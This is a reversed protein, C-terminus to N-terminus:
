EKLKSEPMPPPAGQGYRIDQQPDYRSPPACCPPGLGITARDLAKVTASTESKFVPSPLADTAEFRYTSSKELTIAIDGGQVSQDPKGDRIVRITKGSWPTAFRMAGGDGTHVTFRALQGDVAEVDVSGRAAIAVTGSMTWHVPLAAGVRVVDGDEQVLMESLTLATVGAQEFSFDPIGFGLDGFGNPYVQYYQILERLGRAAEEGYGLRAAQVPDNSWGALYRFPRSAFTRRAIDFSPSDPGILEYPWVAELGINEANRYPATTEYSAAFVDGIPTPMQPLQPTHTLAAALQKALEDDRHLLRSAEIVAPYLTRIAAIDTAPDTVDHQTEHANSPSTHLLADAGPKQYALLFRAAEVMLPYNRELFARDATQRYTRWIWLGIEAGTTLTRANSTSSWHLDCSHTVIPFARLHDSEYEIGNGNFRMTEPVCIGPRGDMHDHTWREIAALNDRYLAFFPANLEPVGAALHVAVQTRLNWVWFAAPDWNHEDGAASFLDAGGAQSGPIAGGNHAEAAYLYLTRLTEAHRAVGDGSEARILHARHWFDHWARTSIDEHVPADLNDHVTTPKGDYAPAAVIIRLRGHADPRAAVEVTRTDITRAHVDSGLARIAAVSGFRRGSTGPLTDDLWSETLWASDSDAGATPQRPEWLALRVRQESDPLGSLDIVVRDRERDVFIRLSIGGGREEIVGDYLDVRGSFERDAILPRLTPITIKGPSRRYPLTDIRNLQLTLGDAAWVAVGLRGNGLPMAQSPLINPQGILIDSRAVISAVDDAAHVVASFGMALFLWGVGRM